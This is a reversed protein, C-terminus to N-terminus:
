TYLLFLIYIFYFCFIALGRASILNDVASRIRHWTAEYERQKTGVERTTEYERQKTGVERTTENERQKTGVERTTENERQKTGVERTM